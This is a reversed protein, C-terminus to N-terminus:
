DIQFHVTLNYYVPVVQGNLTGPKFKWARIATLAQQDLGFGLPKLIRAETVNGNRDIVAEIIVIGQIKARRATETYQPDVRTVIRPPLVNGGVHVPLEGAGGLQGDPKGGLEGGIQGGVEGGIQGGIEGGIQGGPTGGAVGGEQGGPMAGSTQNSPSSPANEAVEELEHPTERPQQFIPETAPRTEVHRVTTIGGASLAPPPPPPPPPSAPVIFAAMPREILTPHQKTYLGAMIVAGVLAVHIVLSLLTSVWGGKQRDKGASEILIEDFM